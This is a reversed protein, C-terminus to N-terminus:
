MREWVYSSILNVVIGLLVTGIIVSFVLKRINEKRKFEELYEGWCFNYVLYYKFLFWTLAVLILLGFIIWKGIPLGGYPKPPKLTQDSEVKYKELDLLMEMQDKYKAQRWKKEIGQIQALKEQKVTSVDNISFLLPLLFIFPILMPLILRLFVRGFGKQGIHNFSLRKTKQIREEILSSTIFVWDRDQGLITHRIPINTDENFSDVNRFEVNIRSENSDKQCIGTLQLRVIASSGSNDALFLEEFDMSEAIAGNAYKINYKFSISNSNVKKLQESIVDHLRRVDQEKLVFGQLYMKASEVQM